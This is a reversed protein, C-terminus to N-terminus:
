WYDLGIGRLEKFVDENTVDDGIFIPLEGCAGLMDTLWQVAKGMHWDADLRIEFVPKEPHDGRLSSGGSFGLRSM